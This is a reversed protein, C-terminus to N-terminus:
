STKGDQVMEAMHVLDPVSQARMKAMVRGRHIKITQEAAGLASAIQKNLLGKVVLAMVERERPTLGEFREQLVAQQAREARAKEDRALAADVASLLAEDTFPKQLFDLAGAKMARVTAPVDGQGTIFIIPIDRGEQRLKEQLDLGNPGPLNLDLVLCSPVEELAQDLFAQSSPFTEAAVRVSRFLESLSARVAPEDDVVYVKRRASPRPAQDTTKGPSKATERVVNPM